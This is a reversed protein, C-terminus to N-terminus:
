YWSRFRRPRPRFLRAVIGFTPVGLGLLGWIFDPRYTSWLILMMSWIFMALVLWVLPHHQSNGHSAVSLSRIMLLGLATFIVVWVASILFHHAGSLLLNDLPDRM